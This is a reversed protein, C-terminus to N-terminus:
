VLDNDGENETLVELEQSADVSKGAFPDGDKVFQITRLDASVGAGGTKHLYPFLTATSNVYCGAYPKGDSETLPTLDRDVVAPRRDSKVVLFMVGDGYGEYDMESGDRLCEHRCKKGKILPDMKCKAVADQIDRIVAADKVKNLILNAEYKPKKGPGDAPNPPRPTFLFPFSLRAGKIKVLVNTKEIAM